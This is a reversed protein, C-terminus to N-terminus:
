LTTRNIPDAKFLSSVRIINRIAYLSIWSGNQHGDSFTRQFTLVLPWNVVLPNSNTSLQTIKFHSHHPPPTKLQPTILAGVDHKGGTNRSVCCVDDSTIM